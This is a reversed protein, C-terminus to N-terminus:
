HDQLTSIEPPLSSVRKLSQKELPSLGEFILGVGAPYAGSGQTKRVLKATCHIEGHGELHLRIEFREGLKLPVSEEQKLGQVFLGTESIDFSKKHLTAGRLWPSLVVPVELQNRPSRDWWKLKPNKIVSLTRKETLLGSIAIFGFSAFSAQTMSFDLAVHGVWWNNFLVTAVTSPLLIRLSWHARLASWATILCAGMVLINLWTITQMLQSFGQLLSAQVPISVAVLVLAISFCTLALPRRNM